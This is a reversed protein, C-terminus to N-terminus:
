KCEDKKEEKCGDKKKPCDCPQENKPREKPPKPCCVQPPQPPPPCVTAPPCCKPPCRMSKIAWPIYLLFPIAYILYRQWPVCEDDKSINQGGKGGDKQDPKKGCTRDTHLRCNNNSM